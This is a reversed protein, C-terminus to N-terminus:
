PRAPAYVVGDYYRRLHEDGTVCRSGFLAALDAAEDRPEIGPITLLEAVRGRPTLQEHWYRRGLLVGRDKLSEVLPITDLAIGLERSGPLVELLESIPPYTLRKGRLAAPRDPWFWLGTEVCLPRPADHLLSVGDGFVRKSDGEILGLVTAGLDHLRVQEASRGPAVGPGLLLIPTVQSHRMGLVDGHGFLGPEELLEEGHDGMVVIVSQELLGARALAGHLRAVARDVSHLAGDYRARIQEVDAATPEPDVTAPAHYLFRGAYGASGRRYDPWPAVFPFHSNSFFVLGAFPREGAAAVFRLAEDALWDPDSLSALNRWEPLLRRFARVRLLPLSWGHGALVTSAALADVTFHPTDVREFGGDFRPFMDGAFDSVVFTAYGRDRLESVFTPPLAELPERRPFM